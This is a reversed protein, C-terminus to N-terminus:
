VLVVAACLQCEVCPRGGMDRCALAICAAWRDDWHAMPYVLGIAILSLRMLHKALHWTDKLPHRGLHIRLHSIADMVADFFGAAIILLFLLLHVM